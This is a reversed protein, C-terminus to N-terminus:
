FGGFQSFLKTVSKKRVTIIKQGPRCDCTLVMNSCLIIRNPRLVSCRLGFVSKTTLDDYKHIYTMSLYTPLLTSIDQILCNQKVSRTFGFLCQLYVPFERIQHFNLVYLGLTGPRQQPSSQGPNHNQLSQKLTIMTTGVQFGLPPCPEACSPCM